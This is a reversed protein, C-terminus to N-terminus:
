LGGGEIDGFTVPVPAIRCIADIITEYDEVDGTLEDVGLSPLEAGSTQSVDFISVMRFSQSEVVKKEKIPNGEADTKAEGTQADLVESEVERKYQVPAIIRIGTEGKNLNITGPVEIRKRSIM